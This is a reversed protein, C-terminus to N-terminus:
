KVKKVDLEYTCANNGDPIYSVRDLRAGLLRALFQAELKCPLRTEKVTQPFPCNCERIVLRNDEVHVNPMFGEEELMGKLMEMRKELSQDSLQNMRHRAEKLRKDWFRKFFKQLHVQQDEEKLFQLLELLLKDDQSPFEAKGKETLRFALRPRGRGHRVYTRSVYGDRELHILHEKHTTRALETQEIADNLTLEGFKKILELLIEKTDKIMM